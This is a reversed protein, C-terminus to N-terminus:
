IHTSPFFRCSDEAKASITIYYLGFSRQSLLMKKTRQRPKQTNKWNGRTHPVAGRNPNQTQLSQTHRSETHNCFSHLFVTKGTKHGPAESSMNYRETQSFPCCFSFYYESSCPTKVIGKKTRRPVNYTKTFGDM